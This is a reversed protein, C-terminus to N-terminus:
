SSNNFSNNNGPIMIPELVLTLSSPDDYRLIVMSLDSCCKKSSLTVAM